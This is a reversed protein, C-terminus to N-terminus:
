ATLIRLCAVASDGLAELDYGGELAWVTRGSAFRDAWGTILEALQRYADTSVELGAMPDAAHADFGASVM